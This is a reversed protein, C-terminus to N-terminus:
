RRLYTSSDTGTRFSDPGRARGTQSVTPGRMSASSASDPGCSVAVRRCSNSTALAMADPRRQDFLRDGFPPPPPALDEHRERVTRAIEGLDDEELDEDVDVPFAL